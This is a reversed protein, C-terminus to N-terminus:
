SITINIFYIKKLEQNKIKKRIKRKVLKILKLFIFSIYILTYICM